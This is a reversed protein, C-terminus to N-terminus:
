RGSFDSLDALGEGSFVGTCNETPIREASNLRLRALVSALVWHVGAYTRSVDNVTSVRYNLLCMNRRDLGLKKVLYNEADKRTKGLPQNLLAIEFHSDKEMYQIMYAPDENALPPSHYQLHYTGKLHPDAFFDPDHTFDRANAFFRGDKLKLLMTNEARSVSALLALVCVTALASGMIAVRM